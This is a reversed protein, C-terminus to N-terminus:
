KRLVFTLNIHIYLNMFLSLLKLYIRPTCRVKLLRKISPVDETSFLIQPVTTETGMTKQFYFRTLKYHHDGESNTSIAKFGAKSSTPRSVFHSERFRPSAPARHIIPLYNRNHQQQQQQKHVAHLVIEASQETSLLGVM